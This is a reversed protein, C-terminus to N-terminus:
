QLVKFSYNECSYSFITHYIYCTKNKKILALHPFFNLELWLQKGFTDYLLYRGFSHINLRFFFVYSILVIRPLIVYSASVRYKCTTSIRIRLVKLLINSKRLNNYYIAEGQSSSINHHEKLEISIYTNM